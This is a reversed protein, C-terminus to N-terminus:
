IIKHTFDLKPLNIVTNNFIKKNQGLILRKDEDVIAWSNYSTTLTTPTISGLSVRYNSVTANYSFIEGGTTDVVKTHENLLYPLLYLRLTSKDKTTFPLTDTLAEGIIINDDSVFNLQYTFNLQEASGKDLRVRNQEQSNIILEDVFLTIYSNTAGEVGKINLTHYGCIIGASVGDPTYRITEDKRYTEHSAIYQELMTDGVIIEGNVFYKPEADYSEKIYFFIDGQAINTKVDRVKANIEANNINSALISTCVNNGTNVQTQSFYWIVRNGFDGSFEVEVETFDRMNHAEYKNTITNTSILSKVNPIYTPLENGIRVADNYNTITDDTYGIDFEAYDIEGRNDSYRVQNQLTSGGRNFVKLGASYNDEFKASFVIANGIGLSVIPLTIKNLKRPGKYGRFVMLNCNENNINNNFYNKMTEASNNFYSNKPKDIGNESIICYDERIIDRQVAQKEDVEYFRQESNIGIYDSIKNDKSLAISTKFFRNYFENKVISIYYDGYKEGVKPIQLLRSFKFMKTIEPNGLRNTASKLAEGLAKSSIKQANQNYALSSEMYYDKINSKRQKIRANILPIYTIRFQLKRIDESTFVGLSRGLKREIINLIAYKELAPIGIESPLKFNLNTINKQGITYLLAFGKSYPYNGNIASLTAYESSEYVYPLLEGVETGNSLYGCWLSTIEQIPLKTRIYCNNTDMVVEADETRLTKLGRDYPEVIAGEQKNEVNTLNDANMDLGSIFQEINFTQTNSCYNDLQASTQRSEGLKDFYITNDILRPISHIYDGIIALQEYLTGTLTFQPSVILSFEEKQTSNLEFKPTEKESLCEINNLVKEVTDSISYQEVAGLAEVYDITYEYTTETFIPRETATIIENKFHKIVYEAETSSTINYIENDDSLIQILEGDKFIQTHYYVYYGLSSRGAPNVITIYSNIATPSKNTKETQINLDINELLEYRDSGGSITIFVFPSAETYEKVLPQRISITSGIFRELWKTQEILLLDHNYKKNLIIETMTDTSVFFGYNITRGYDDSIEILVKSLPKIVSDINTGKLLLHAMDLSKDLTLQNSTPMVCYKTIDTEIENEKLIIKYNM